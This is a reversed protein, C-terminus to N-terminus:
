SLQRQWNRAEIARRYTEVTLAATKAWSFQAARHLGRAMRDARLADDTLVRELAAAIEGVDYPDVLLGADGVVEPISTNNSAVVAVGCAMAELPPLGFGEYLSVYAMARAGHFFAPLDELPVRGPMLLRDGLGLAELRAYIPDSLWGGQGALVLRTTLEPRREIVAKFATALRVLNKRPEITGVYFVYDGERLGHRALAERMATPDAPPRFEPGAAEPIVDIREPAVGLLEIIDRRTSESVAIIRTADRGVLQLRRAYHLADKRPHWERHRLPIADHVTMVHAVHPLRVFVSDSWHCVDLDGSVSSPLRWRAVIPVSDARRWLPMLTYSDITYALRRTRYDKKWPGDMLHLMPLPRARVYRAGAVSRPLAARDHSGLGDLLTICGLDVVEPLHALLQSAYVYMGARHNSYLNAIEFGIRM